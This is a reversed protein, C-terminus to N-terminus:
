WVLTIVIKDMDSMRVTNIAKVDTLIYGIV